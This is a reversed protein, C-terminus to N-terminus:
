KIEKESCYKKHTNEEELCTNFYVTLHTIQSASTCIFNDSTFRSNCACIFEPLCWTVNVKVCVKSSTKIKKLTKKAIWYSKKEWNKKDSNRTDYAITVTYMQLNSKGDIHKKNNDNRLDVVFPSHISHRAICYM